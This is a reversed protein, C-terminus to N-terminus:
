RLRELAKKMVGTIAGTPNGSRRLEVSIFASGKLAHLEEHKENYWCAVDGLGALGDQGKKACMARYMAVSSAPLRTLNVQVKHLGSGEYECSSVTTGPGAPLNSLAKPGKVAEGLAAAADEKTLLSCADGSAPTAAKTQAAAAPVLWATSTVITSVLAIVASRIPKPM